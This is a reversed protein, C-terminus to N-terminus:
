PPTAKNLKNTESTRRTKTEPNTDTDEQQQQKGPTSPVSPSDGPHQDNENVFEPPTSGLDEQGQEEEGWLIGYTKTIEWLYSDVLEQM